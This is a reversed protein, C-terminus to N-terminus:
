PAVEHDPGWGSSIASLVTEQVLEPHGFLGPLGGTHLFVVREGPQVSGSRVAHVLGAMARGVYTADLVLGETRAALQMAALVEASLHEYGEGVQGGDIRLASVSPTPGPMGELLGHVTARADPMAGTDFGLVRDPNLAQVLGAMTGGSGVAVVVHALDPVQDLLEDGVRAYRMASASSSGGFPIEFPRRGKEGLSAVTRTSAEALPVDGAWVLQAGFLRDLLLNGRVQEPEQGGLVLVVPLGLRAGAAATLRAHNSQPAGSTVLVDAGAELAQDCTVELKRVKNGGGGLGTLDERKVVLDDAGLGIAQALRPAPEVPTPGTVFRM